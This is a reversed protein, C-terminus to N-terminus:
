RGSARRWELLRRTGHAFFGAFVGVWAVRSLTEAARVLVPPRFELDVRHEGPAVVVAMFAGIARLIPVPAGNV